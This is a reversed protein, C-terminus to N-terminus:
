LDEPVLPQGAGKEGPFLVKFQGERIAIRCLGKTDWKTPQDQPV